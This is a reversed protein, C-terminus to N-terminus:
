VARGLYDRVRVVIQFILEVETKGDPQIPHNLQCLCSSQQNTTLSAPRPTIPRETAM